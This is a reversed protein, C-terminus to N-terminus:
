PEEAAQPEGSKDSVAARREQIISRVREEHRRLREERSLPGEQRVTQDDNRKAAETKALDRAPVLLEQWESWRREMEAVRKAGEATPVEVDLEALLREIHEIAEPLDAVIMKGTRDDATISGIGKTLLPSLASEVDSPRLYELRFVKEVAKDALVNARYYAGDAVYITKEDQWWAWGHPACIRDLLTKLDVNRDSLSIRFGPVKGVPVIAIGAQQGIVTLAQEIRMDNFTAMAVMATTEGAAPANEEAMSVLPTAALLAAMAIGLRITM